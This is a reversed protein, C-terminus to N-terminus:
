DGVDSVEVYVPMNAHSTQKDFVVMGSNATPPHAIFGIPRADVWALYVRCLEEMVKAPAECRIGKQAMAMTFEIEARDIM